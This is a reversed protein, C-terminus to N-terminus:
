EVDEATEDDGPRETSLYVFRPEGNKRLAAHIASLTDILERAPVKEQVHATMRFVNSGDFDEEEKVAVSQFGFRDLRQQLIPLAIKRVEADTMYEAHANAM